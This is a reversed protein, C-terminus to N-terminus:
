ITEDGKPPTKMGIIEQSQPGRRSSRCLPAFVVIPLTSSRWPRGQHGSSPVRAKKEQTPPERERGVTRVFCAEGLCRKAANAIIIPGSRVAAVSDYRCQWPRRASGGATEPPRRFASSEKSLPRSDVEVVRAPKSGLWRVERDKEGHRLPTRSIRLGHNSCASDYSDPWGGRAPM